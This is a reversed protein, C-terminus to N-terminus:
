IGNVWLSIRNMRRSPSARHFTIHAARRRNTRDVEFRCASVFLECIGGHDCSSDRAELADWKRESKPASAVLPSCRLRLFIPIYRYFNIFNGNRHVFGDFLLFEARTKATSAEPDQSGPPTTSPQSSFRLPDKENGRSSESGPDTTRHPATIITQLTRFTSNKKERDTSLYM